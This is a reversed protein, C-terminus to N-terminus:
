CGRCKGLQAEVYIVEANLVARTASVRDGCLATDICGFVILVVAVGDVAEEIVGYLAAVETRALGVHVTQSFHRVVDDVLAHLLTHREGAFVATQQGVAGEAAGLHATCEVGLTLGSLLQQEAGVRREVALDLLTLHAREVTTLHEVDYYDVSAGAADDHAVEDGAFQLAVGGVGHHEGGAAVSACEEEGGVGHAAVARGGDLCEAFAGVEGVEGECLDVGGAYGHM